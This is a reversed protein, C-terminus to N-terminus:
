TCSSAGNSCKEQLAALQDALDKVNKHSLYNNQYANGAYAAGTGGTAAGLGQLISGTISKVMLDATAGTLGADEAFQEVLKHIEPALMASSAGGLMGSLMGSFDTVGGLLGGAIAHLIAPGNGGEQWFEMEAKDDSRSAQAYRESAYDGIMKAAKAAADDYLQQTKLQEDLLKQLDPIGPLSTNTDTTDLRLDDINQKQSDPNTIIIEGPSVASLAKGTESEGEKIPPSLIPGSGTIGGGYTEAKWKSHTDLDEFELTGTELRNDKPDAESSIM